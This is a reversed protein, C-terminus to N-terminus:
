DPLEQFEVFEAINCGEVEVIWIDSDFRKEKTLQADVEDETVSLLRQEFMRESSETENYSMQLAPSLLDYM